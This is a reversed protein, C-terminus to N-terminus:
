LGNHLKRWNARPLKLQACSKIASPLPAPLLVNHYHKHNLSVAVDQVKNLIVRYEQEAIQTQVYM